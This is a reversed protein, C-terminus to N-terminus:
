WPRASTSPEIVKLSPLDTHSLAGLASPPITLISIAKERLTEALPPGPRISEAEALVLTAGSGLAMVLDFTAADFSPSSFQLVRHGPGAGFLRVQEESVNVLGRHELLAAKPQGTSGSTYIMYALDTSGPLEPLESQAYEASKHLAIDVLRVTGCVREIQPRTVADTLVCKVEADELMFQLRSEPYKPDLPLYAAGAKWISLIGIVLGPGREVCLGVRDGRKVGEERLSCAFRNTAADLQAYSLSTQGFDAAILDPQRVAWDRFRDVLTQEDNRHDRPANWDVLLRHRDEGSAWPHGHRMRGSSHWVLM